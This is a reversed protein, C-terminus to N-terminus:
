RWSTSILSTDLNVARADHGDRSLETARPIDRALDPSGRLLIFLEVTARITSVRESLLSSKQPEEKSLMLGTFSPM